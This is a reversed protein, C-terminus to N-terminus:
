FLNVTIVMQGLRPAETTGFAMRPIVPELAAPIRHEPELIRGSKYFQKKDKSQPAQWVLETYTKKYIKLQAVQRCFVPQRVPKKIGSVFLFFHSSKRIKARLHQWKKDSLM